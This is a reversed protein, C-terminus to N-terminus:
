VTENFNFQAAAQLAYALLFKYMQQLAPSTSSESRSCIKSYSSLGTKKQFTQFNILDRFIRWVEDEKKKKKQVHYPQHVCLSPSLLLGFKPRSASIRKSKAASRCAKKWGSNSDRCLAPSWDLMETPKSM